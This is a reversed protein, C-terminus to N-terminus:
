QSAPVTGIGRTFGDFVSRKKMRAIAPQLGSAVVGREAGLELNDGRGQGHVPTCGTHEPM